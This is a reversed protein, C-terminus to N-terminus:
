FRNCHVCVCACMLRIIIMIMGIFFFHMDDALFIFIITNVYGREVAM